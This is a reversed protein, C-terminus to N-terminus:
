IGHKSKLASLLAQDINESEALGNAKRFARVAAQTAPGAIGDIAGAYYGLNALRGQVGSVGNDACHDMPNLHGIALKMSIGDLVLEAEDLDPPITVRLLGAGDTKTSHTAGGYHLKCAHNALPHGAHDILKLQLTNSARHAKFRAPSGTQASLSKPAKDPISIEDGPAILNPNPRKQRFSANDPHNYIRSWDAIGHESAIKSLYDGPQVKYTTM